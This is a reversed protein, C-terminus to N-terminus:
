FTGNFYARQASQSGTQEAYADWPCCQSTCVRERCILEQQDNM